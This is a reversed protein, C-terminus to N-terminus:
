DIIIYLLNNPVTTTLFFIQISITLHSTDISVFWNYPTVSKICYKYIAYDTDLSVWTIVSVLSLFGIFICLIEFYATCTRIKKQAM